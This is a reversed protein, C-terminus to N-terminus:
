NRRSFFMLSTGTTLVHPFLGSIGALPVRHPSPYLPLVRSRVKLPLSAQSHFIQFTLASPLKAIVWVAWGLPLVTAWCRETLQSTLSVSPFVVWTEQNTNEILTGQWPRMSFLHPLLIYQYKPCGHLLGFWLDPNHKYPPWWLNSYSAFNLFLEKRLLHILRFM